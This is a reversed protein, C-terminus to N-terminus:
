FREILITELLSCFLIPVQANVQSILTLNPSLYVYVFQHYIYCLLVSYYLNIVMFRYVLALKTKM